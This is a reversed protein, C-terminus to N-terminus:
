MKVVYYHHTMMMVMMTAGLWQVVVMMKTEFLKQEAIWDNCCFQWYWHLDAEDSASVAFM